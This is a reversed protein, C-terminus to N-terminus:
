RHTIYMYVTTTASNTGGAAAYKVRGLIDATAINTTGLAVGDLRDNLDKADSQSVGSIVAQVVACNLPGADNVSGAGDLNYAANSATAAATSDLGDVVEVHTSVNDGIKVQFRKDLFGEALLVSDFTAGGTTSTIATGNSSLISGWKAYHDTLATKVTNYSVAANNIRSSNIADFVKPLLLSALIAIVALVGIMEILTFASHKRNYTTQLKM